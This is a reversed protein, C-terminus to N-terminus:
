HIAGGLRGIRSAKEVYYWRRRSPQSLCLLDSPQSCWPDLQAYCWWCSRKPDAPFLSMPAAPFNDDEFMTGSQVCRQVIGRIDSSTIKSQIKQWEAPRTFSMDGRVAKAGLPKQARTREKIKRGVERIKDRHNKIVALLDYFDNATMGPVNIHDQKIKLVLGIEFVSM